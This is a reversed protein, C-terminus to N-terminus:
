KRKLRFPKIIIFIGSIMAGLSILKGLLGPDYLLYIVGGGILIYSINQPANLFIDIFNKLIKWIEPAVFGLFSLLALFAIARENSFINLIQSSLLFLSCAIGYFMWYGWHQYYLRAVLAMGFPFLFLLYEM